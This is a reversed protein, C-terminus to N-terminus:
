KNLSYINGVNLQRFYHIISVDYKSNSQIQLKPSPSILSPKNHNDEEDTTMDLDDGYSEHIMAWLQQSSM